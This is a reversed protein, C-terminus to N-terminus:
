QNIVVGSEVKQILRTIIDDFTEGRNGIDNLKNWTAKKISINKYEIEKRTKTKAAAAAAPAATKTEM